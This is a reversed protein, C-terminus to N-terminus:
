YNRDALMVQQGVTVLDMLSMVVASLASHL